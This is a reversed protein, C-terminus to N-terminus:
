IKLELYKIVAGYFPKFQSNADKQHYFQILKKIEEKSRKGAKNNLKKQVVQLVSKRNEKLRHHNLNLVLNLERDFNADSSSIVGDSSYKVINSVLHRRDAPSYSIDSNGKRTDCTQNKPSTGENGNCCGLLNQYSLQLDSNRQQCAWHEVKMNTVNIRNMCYACTHGQEILLHNRIDDKVNTFNPGDYEANPLQRYMTLSAPEVGKNIDYM